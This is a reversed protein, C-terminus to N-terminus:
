KTWNSSNLIDVILLKDNDRKFLVRMEDVRLILANLDQFSVIKVNRSTKTLSTIERMIKEAKRKDLSEIAIRAKERFEIKM